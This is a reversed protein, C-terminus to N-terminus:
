ETAGESIAVTITKLFHETFLTVVEMSNRITDVEAVIARKLYEPVQEKPELEKFINNGEAM